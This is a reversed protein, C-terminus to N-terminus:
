KIVPQGKKPNQPPWTDCPYDFFGCKRNKEDLDKVEQPTNGTCFRCMFIQIIKGDKKCKPTHCGGQSPPKSICSAIDMCLKCNYLHFAPGWRPDSPKVDPIGEDHCQCARDICDIPKKKNSGDGVEGGCYNGHDGPVNGTRDTLVTPRQYSYAYLNEGVLSFFLDDSNIWRSKQSNLFRARIYYKSNSDAYYGQTGIFQFRTITNGTRSSSEGVTRVIEQSIVSNGTFHLQHWEVISCCTRIVSM